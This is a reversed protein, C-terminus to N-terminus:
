EPAGPDFRAAVPYRRGPGFAKGTIVLGPAMQKRKYESFRVLRVVRQVTAPHFGAAIIQDAEQHREVHRELIADLVDYPPLSDQDMQGPRLEASPPKTLTSHPIIDRGSQQNFAEAVDYVFTKPLDAIPALAGCMDGYLTCYGVAIESKNGTTLLLCNLRNALAMLVNGRIRAQVNEFTVDNGLPQGFADLHPPLEDLYAQFLGDITVERFPMGLNDALAKADVRSHESSYRTPMAVGIVNDAGLARVAIAAVLASDIGGSLGLAVRSFGTKRVYDRVGLALADIAADADTAYAPAVSGGATLDALLLAEEFQPARALVEGCADFVASAGDFVLEDNGGVQNVFILPVRREKAIDRLMRERGMRKQLTFPSASVNVLVQAGKAMLESVPNHAYRTVRLDSRDAWIDECILVGVKKGAVEILAPADGAAFYRQEDFVDYTPLLRKRLRAVVKGGTIVAVGNYLSPRGEAPAHELAGVLCVLAKPLAGALRQLADECLSALRPRDLLDRPPYGVLALEPFVVLQAGVAAASCAQNVIATANAAIDGVTPNFQCLAVRM